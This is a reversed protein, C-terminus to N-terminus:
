YIKLSGVCCHNKKGVKIYFVVMRILLREDAVPWNVGEFKPYGKNVQLAVERLVRIWQGGIPKM